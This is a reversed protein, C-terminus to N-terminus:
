SSAQMHMSFVRRHVNFMHLHMAYVETRMHSISALAIVCNVSDFISNSIKGASREM